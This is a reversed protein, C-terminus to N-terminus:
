TREHDDTEEEHQGPRLRAPPDTGTARAALDRLCRELKDLVAQTVGSRKPGMSSKQIGLGRISESERREAGAPGNGRDGRAGDRIAGRRVTAMDGDRYWTLAPTMTRRTMGHPTTALGMFWNATHKMTAM